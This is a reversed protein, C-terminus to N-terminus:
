LESLADVYQDATQPYAQVNGAGSSLVFLVFGDASAIWVAPYNTAVNSKYWSNVNVVTITPVARMRSPLNFSIGYYAQTYCNGLIGPWGAGSNNYTSKWYYRHCLALETQFSRREFLTASSGIEIQVGTIYFTAGSTSIVNVGGTVNLVNSSIWSNTTSTSYTAGCGVSFYVHFMGANTSVYGGTPASTDGTITITKYEWTNASSITYTYPYTRYTGGNIGQIVGSFTGTLSSRVWFSLTVTKASATGWAFDSATYGEVWQYIGYYDAAGPTYSSQSSIGLYHSFGPPPTVGGANQQAVMKGTTGGNTVIWRDVTYGSITNATTNGIYRQDIRMDGNIIRNKMGQFPNLSAANVAVGGVSVTTSNVTTNVTSNGVMLYATNSVVVATTNVSAVNSGGAFISVGNSGSSQIRNNGTSEFWVNATQLVSM